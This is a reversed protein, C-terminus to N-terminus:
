RAAAIRNGADSGSRCCPKCCSLAISRKCHCIALSRSPTSSWRRAGNRGTSPTRSATSRPRPFSNIQQKPLPSPASAAVKVAAQAAQRVALPDRGDLLCQRAERARNRAEVLSVTHLPGLSMERAKGDRTYRFTWVKEGPRVIFLYLGLGDSYRGTKTAKEVGVASLKNAQRKAKM